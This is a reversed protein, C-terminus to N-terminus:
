DRQRRNGFLLFMRLLQALSSLLAAVYTLAAANLVKKVGTQEDLTMMNNGSIIAMARSSANYEVPLTVLQFISVLAYGVLGIDILISANGGIFAGILILPIALSSGLNTVPIIANRLKLPGYSEAHQIAHGCEHAAVGVASITSSRYVDESLRVVRTRPDYHDSLRGGVELVQVDQLGNRDLIERAARYGTYGERNSIQSYKSYASQMRTQALMGLLLAPVVLLLYYPDIYM